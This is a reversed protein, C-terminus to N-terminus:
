RSLPAPALEPAGRGAATGPGGRSIAGSSASAGLHDAAREDDVWAIRSALFSRLYEAVQSAEIGHLPVRPRTVGDEIV